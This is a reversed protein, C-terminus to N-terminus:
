KKKTKVTIIMKLVYILPIIFMWPTSIEILTFLYPHKHAWFWAQADDMTIGLM